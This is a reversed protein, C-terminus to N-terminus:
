TLVSLILSFFKLIQTLKTSNFAAIFLMPSFKDECSTSLIISCASESPSPRTLKSSNAIIIFLHSCSFSLCLSNCIIKFMDNIM